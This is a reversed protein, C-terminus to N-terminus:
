VTEILRTSASPRQCIALARSSGLCPEANHVCETMSERPHIESKAPARLDNCGPEHLTMAADGDDIWTWGATQLREVEPQLRVADSPTVDTVDQQSMDVEIVSAGCSRDDSLVRV